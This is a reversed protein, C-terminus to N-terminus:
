TSSRWGHTIPAIRRYGDYTRKVGAAALTAAFQDAVPEMGVERNPNYETQRPIRIQFFVDRNVQLVQFVGLRL